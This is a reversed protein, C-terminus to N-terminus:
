KKKVVPRELVQVRPLPDSPVLEARGPKSGSLRGVPVLEVRDRQWVGVLMYMVGDGSFEGGPGVQAFFEGTNHTLVRAGDTGSYVTADYEDGSDRLEQCGIALEPRGDGNVDGVACISDAFGSLYGSKSVYPITLLESLDAGSYLRVFEDHCGAAFDGVGDGNV